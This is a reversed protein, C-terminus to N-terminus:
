VNDMQLQLSSMNRLKQRIVLPNPAHLPTQKLFKDGQSAPTYLRETVSMNRRPDLQPLSAGERYESVSKLLTAKLARNEDTLKNMISQYRNVIIDTIQSEREYDQYIANARERAERLEESM